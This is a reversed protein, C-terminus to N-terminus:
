CQAATVNCENVDQGCTAGEYGTGECNCFFRGVQDQCRGGNVCPNSECENIPYQCM